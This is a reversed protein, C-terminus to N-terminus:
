NRLSAPPLWDKQHVQKVLEQDLHPAILKTFAYAVESYEHGCGRAREPPLLGEDVVRAFAKADAGYAICLLNYYRQAPVGHMDAFARLPLIVASSQINNKYSYAAGAILRSADDKGLHLMMYTSFQDAADESAGFSPIQLVDFIAHGFEHSVVYYFQGLVADVPSLGGLALDKPASKLIDDLYEYCLSVVPRLYWANSRGDCGLTKVTLDIPLRFPSFIKQVKELAAGEKVYRYVEDHQANKPPVYEFQIRNPKSGAASAGPQAVGPAFGAAIIAVCIAAIPLPRSSMLLM